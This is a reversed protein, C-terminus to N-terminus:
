TNFIVIAIFVNQILVQSFHVIFEILIIECGSPAFFRDDDTSIYILHSVVCFCMNTDDHKREDNQSNENKDITTVCCKM